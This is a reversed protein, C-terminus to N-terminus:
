GFTQYLLLTTTGVYGCGDAMFVLFSCTGGVRLLSILRDWAAAGLMAYAGYIGVGIMVQWCFGSLESAESADYVITSILMAFVSLIMTILMGTFAIANSDCYHFSYQIICSLVAGPIDVTFYVYSPPNDTRGLSATFIEQAYFDRFSRLSALLVYPILMCVIGLANGSLFIWKAEPSLATRASRQSIDFHSPPPCLNILYLFGTSLPCCILGLTAPMAYPPVGFELMLSATGRSLNGAYIFFFNMTALLAETGSRGELYTIIGGYIWSSVFCSVFVCLV